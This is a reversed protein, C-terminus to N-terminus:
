KTSTAVLTRLRWAVFAALGTGFILVASPEPVGPVDFKIDNFVIGGADTNTISIGAIDRVGGERRFGFFDSGLGMPNLTSILSGDRRFFSFVADGADGGTSEFGFESQDREFLIAVSGEGIANFDPFGVPGLGGIQNGDPAFAYVVLNQNAAGVQLDLPGSPTGSLTDSNGSSGLVQGAFREAFSAGPISIIGDYNTGPPAGGTLSEFDIFGAGSLTAYDVENIPDAHALAAISLALFVSLSAARYAAVPPFLSLPVLLRCRLQM